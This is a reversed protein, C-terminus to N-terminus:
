DWLSKLLVIGLLVLGDVLFLLEPFFFDPSFSVHGSIKAEAMTRMDRPNRRPCKV